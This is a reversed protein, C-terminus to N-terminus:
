PGYARNFTDRSKAELEPWKGLRAVPFAALWQGRALDVYTLEPDLRFAAGCKPCPQRQFTRDLIATRLDARRDANVSFVAEFTVPAACAPCPVTIPRFVSM